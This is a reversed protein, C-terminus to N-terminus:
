VIYTTNSIPTSPIGIYDCILSIQNKYLSCRNQIELISTELRNIRDIAQKLVVDYAIQNVCASPLYNTETHEVYKQKKNSCYTAEKERNRKNM